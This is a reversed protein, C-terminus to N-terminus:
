HSSPIAPHPEPTEPQESKGTPPLSNSGRDPLGGSLRPEFGHFLRLYTPYFGRSNRDARYRDAVLRILQGYTPYIQTTAAIDGLTAGTEMALVLQQLVLSAQEGVVTAGLIKGSPSAVVKAFGDTRGDIHSRDIESYAARYVRHETGETAVQEETRGVSAIEPDLFTAWPLTSYDIRQRRRLVANQFAVEAEREAAHTYQQRMLVDGIAFVRVSRTQLLDDVEIGHIPDAHVGIEELNLGEVNALRGAACLIETAAVEAVAGESGAFRCVKLGDRLEVRELKIGTRITLGEEQLRGAVHAAVEPDERPLIRDLDTLVTVQAGFRAFVQAFELGISGAGIVALSQPVSTLGWISSNDLCGAEALGPVKPLAPRSGTAVVFRQGEVRTKSDLVVTDYAEFRPSGYYVDIGRARLSDESDRSAVAAVVQRVHGMLGSLDLGEFRTHIGFEGAHPIQSLLRAAQVLVKSPVGGGFVTEGGPRRQEILAVRAGVQAAALAVNLGGSGGGIVVLDYM